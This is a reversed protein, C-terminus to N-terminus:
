RYSGDHLLGNVRVPCNLREQGGTSSLSNLEVAECLSVASADFVLPIRLRMM